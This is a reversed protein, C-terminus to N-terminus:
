ASACIDKECAEAARDFDVRGTFEFVDVGSFKEIYDSRDLMDFTEPATGCRPLYFAGTPKMVANLLDNREALTVKKMAFPQESEREWNLIVLSMMRASPASRSSGFVTDIPVDYKEELDWLEENPLKLLESRRAEPIIQRLDPNNLITGPNVRPQKPVGAMTPVGVNKVLLRDNSVFTAGRSMLRLALSSKGGGSFAAIGIGAGDFIVGAAHCVAWGRDVLWGLYQSIVFNIIQNSNPLCPGFAIRTDAAVLFHMGTRVKQIVRGDALDAVADKRGVKGPDRPWDRFTLGLDPVDREIAVIHFDPQSVAGVYPGFYAILRDRLIESNTELVIQCDGFSLGVAPAPANGALVLAAIKGISNAGGTV